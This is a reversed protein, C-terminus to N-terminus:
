EKEGTHIGLLTYLPCFSLLSTLLFVIAVVLGITALTGTIVETFYLAALVVAILVRIYRDMKGMNKKMALQNKHVFYTLINFFCRYFPFTKFSFLMFAAANM